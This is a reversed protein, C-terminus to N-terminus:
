EETTFHLLFLAPISRLKLLCIGEKKGLKEMLKPAWVGGGAGM